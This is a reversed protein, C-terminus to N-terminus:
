GAIISQPVYKTGYAMIQIFHTLESENTMKNQETGPNVPVDM